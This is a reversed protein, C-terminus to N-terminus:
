LGPEKVMSYFSSVLKEEMVSLELVYLIHKEILTKTTKIPVYKTNKIEITKEVFLDLEVRTEDM